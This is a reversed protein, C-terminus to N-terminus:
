ELNIVFESKQDKQLNITIRNDRMYENELVLDSNEVDENPTLSVKIEDHNNHVLYLIEAKININNYFINTTYGVAIPGVEPILNHVEQGLNVDAHIYKRATFDSYVFKPNNTIDIRKGDLEIYLNNKNATNVRFIGDKLLFYIKRSQGILGFEKIDNRDKYVSDFETRNKQNDSEYKVDGNKYKAYWIYKIGEDELPSVQMAIFNSLGVVFNDVIM